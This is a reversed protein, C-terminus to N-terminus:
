FGKASNNGFIREVESVTTIGREAKVLGDERMTVMGNKSIAYDRIAPASSNSVIQNRINGDCELFEFVGVRGKYGCGGCRICEESSTRDKNSDSKKQCSHCVKRVLRQALVGTVTSAIKYPAVGLDSLRALAGVADTTHMSTLVLHGTLAAQVATQATEPDRIEGVMIIDPDQRLLGRLGSPFTLGVKQNVQTQRVGPLLREVPDEITLATKDSSAIKQLAAYLTTTKGCGTPGTAIVIGWQSRITSYFSEKAKGELGTEELEIPQEGSNMIRIVLSEGAITPFTSVRLWVEREGEQFSFRGSQPLRIESIDLGAMAKIRSVLEAELGKAAPEAEFMVGDVRHRIMLRGNAPELHIDSAHSALASQLLDEAMRAVPADEGISTAYQQTIPSNPRLYFRDIAALIASEPAIVPEVRGSLRYAVEDVASLNLPDAMAVRITGNERFLPLLLHKRALGEPVSSLLDDTPKTASYLDIMPAGLQKGLARVFEKETALGLAVVAQGLRINMKKQASLAKKLGGEDLVGAGLLLDGLRSAGRDNM